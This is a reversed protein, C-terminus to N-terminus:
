KARRYIFVMGSSSQILPTDGNETFGVITFVEGDPLHVNDGSKGAIIQIGYIVPFKISFIRQM